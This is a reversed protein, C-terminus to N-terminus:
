SAHRRAITSETLIVVLLARERAEREARKKAIVQQKWQCPACIKEQQANDKGEHRRPCVDACYDATGWVPKFFTTM